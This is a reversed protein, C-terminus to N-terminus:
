RFEATYWGGRPTATWSDVAFYYRNSTMNEVYVIEPQGAGWMDIGIWGAAMNYWGYGSVWIWGAEPRYVYIVMDWYNSAAGGWVDGRVRPYAYFYVDRGATTNNYTYYVERGAGTALNNNPYDYSYGHDGYPWAPFPKAGNNANTNANSGLLEASPDSGNAVGDGDDDIEVNLTYNGCGWCNYSTLVIGGWRGAPVKGTVIKSGGGSGTVYHNTDDDCSLLYWPSDCRNVSFFMVNDFGGPTNTGDTTVIYGRNLTNFPAQAHNIHYINFYYCDTYPSGVCYDMNIVWDMTPDCTTGTWTGGIQLEPMPFNCSSIDPAEIRDVKIQYINGADRSDVVVWNRGNPFTRGGTTAGYYWCSDNADFGLAGAKASWCTGAGDDNCDIYASSQGCGPVVTNGGYFYEVTNSGSPGGVMARYRYTDYETPIDFYHVLDKGGAGGCSSSYNDTGCYTDGLGTWIRSLGSGSTSLASATACTDNASTSVVPHTCTGTADCIDSSCAHGDDTCATGVPRNSWAVQSTASVCGQCEFLPRPDGNNYCTTGILCTGAAIAHTCTGSGNCVDSTCAYSDGNCATGSAMNSWATQSTASLCGQCENPVARQQGNVYCAGSILCTGAAIPHTCTGASCVDSTCFLGDSACATGNPRNSWATQSTATNCYQCANGPNVAGNAYCTGSIICFGAAPV